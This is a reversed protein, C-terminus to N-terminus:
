FELLIIELALKNNLNSTQSQHYLTEILRIIKKVQGTTYSKNTIRGSEYHTPNIGIHQLLLTRFYQQLKILIVNFNNGELNVEKAYKFKEALDASVISLLEQPLGNGRLEASTRGLKEASFNPLIFEAHNQSNRFSISQCRSFITPLLLEPQSSILFIITKGKPEELNKLFCNQADTTMREAHEIMVTKYGNYYPTLSLFHQVERMQEIEISMMDKENKVSSDSQISQVIKLDPFIGKDIMTTDGKLGSIDKLFEKAFHTISTIDTGSLVYAHGLQGAEFKGKLFEWQKQYNMLNIAKVM